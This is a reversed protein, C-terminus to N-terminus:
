ELGLSVQLDMPVKVSEVTDFYSVKLSFKAMKQFLFYSYHYETKGGNMQRMRGPPMLKIEKGNEDFAEIGKLNEETSIVNFQNGFQSVKVKFPGVTAEENPKFAIEKKETAKEDKGMRLALSAKLLIKEAGKAPKTNSKVQLTVADGEPAYQVFVENLWDSGGGGFLGGTKTHLDTKKDDTFSDLKSAKFDVGTLHKGSPKILVDLTTGNNVFSFTGPKPPPSNRIELRTVQFKASAKDDAEKKDDAALLATGAALMCLASLWRTM